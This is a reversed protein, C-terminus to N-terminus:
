WRTTEGFFDDIEVADGAGRAARLVHLGVALDLVGLGFPSFIVPRDDGVTVEGRIFQALTGTVFHRDGYKQEALPPPTTATLRHEGDDLTNCAAEILEPRFLTTSPL